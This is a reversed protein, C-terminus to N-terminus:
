CLSIKIILVPRLYSKGDSYTPSKRFNVDFNITDIKFLIPNKRGSVITENPQAYPNLDRICEWWNCGSLSSTTNNPYDTARRGVNVMSEVYSEANGFAWVRDVKDWVQKTGVGFIISCKPQNSLEREITISKNSTLKKKEFTTLTLKM